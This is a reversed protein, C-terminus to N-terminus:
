RYWTVLAFKSANAELARAQSRSSCYVDVVLANREAATRGTARAARRSVVARGTDVAVYKGIGAIKVVSGYPIVNPDVACHGERLKVGTSSIRRKTYFDGEGPWYVTVRALRTQIKIPGGVKTEPDPYAPDKFAAPFVKSLTSDSMSYFPGRHRKVWELPSSFNSVKAPKSEKIGAARSGFSFWSLWSGFSSVGGVDGTHLHAQREPSGYAWSSAAVNDHSGIFCVLLSLCFLIGVFLAKSLRRATGRRKRWGDKAHQLKSRHPALAWSAASM